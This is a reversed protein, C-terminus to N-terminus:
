WPLRGPNLIGAPDFEAKMRAMLQRGVARCVEAGIQDQVIGWVLERSLRWSPPRRAVVLTGGMKQLDRSLAPFLHNRFPDEATLMWVWIVGQPLHAQLACVEPHDALSCCAELVRTPLVRVQLLVAERPNATPKNEQVGEEGPQLSPPAAGSFSELARWMDGAEASPVKAVKFSRGSGIRRFVQDEMEQVEEEWGELGIALWLSGEDWRTEFFTHHVSIWTVGALLEVAAVQVQLPGLDQLIEQAKEFSPLGFLLFRSSEPRPRVMLTVEVLIALSGLSGTILRPLNYGAANKVLRSGGSFIEGKGDVARFGLFFDAVSGYHSHRPGPWATALWGGVTMRDSWSPAAPLWQNERVLIEQLAAVPMGAEVTITLDRSPYDVIKELKGLHLAIGPQSAPGGYNLHTGGGIPYVPRRRHVCETVVAALEAAESVAVKEEIPLFGEIHEMQHFGFM